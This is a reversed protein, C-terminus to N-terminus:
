ICICIHPRRRRDRRRVSDVIVIYLTDDYYYYCPVCVRLLCCADYRCRARAGSEACAYVGRGAAATHCCVYICLFCCGRVCAHVQIRERGHRKPM